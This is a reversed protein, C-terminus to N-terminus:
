MHVSGALIHLLNESEQYQYKVLLLIDLSHFSFLYMSVLFFFFFIYGSSLVLDPSAEMAEIALFVVV